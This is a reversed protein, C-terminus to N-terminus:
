RRRKACNVSNSSRRENVAAKPFAEAIRSEFKAAHPLSVSDFHLEAHQWGLQLEDHHGATAFSRSARERPRSPFNLSDLGVVGITAVPSGLSQGHWFYM